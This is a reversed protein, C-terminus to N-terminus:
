NQVNNSRGLSEIRSIVMIHNMLLSIFFSRMKIRKHSKVNYRFNSYTTIPKRGANVIFQDAAANRSVIPRHFMPLRWGRGVIKVFVTRDAGEKIVMRQYTTVMWSVTFYIYIVSPLYGAVPAEEAVHRREKEIRM